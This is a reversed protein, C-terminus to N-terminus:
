CKEFYILKSINSDFTYKEEFASKVYYLKKEIDKWQRQIVFEITEIGLTRVLLEQDLENFMSYLKIINTPITHGYWEILKPNGYEEYTRYITIFPHSKNDGFHYDSFIIDFFLDEVGYNEGAFEHSKAIIMETIPIIINSNSDDNTTLIFITKNDLTLEKWHLDTYNVLVDGLIYSTALLLEEYNRYINEYHIWELTSIDDYTHNLKLYQSADSIPENYWSAFKQVFDNKYKVNKESLYKTSLKM